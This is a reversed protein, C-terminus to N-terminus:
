KVGGSKVLRKEEDTMLECAYSIVFPPMKEKGNNESLFSVIRKPNVKYLERLVWGVAKQILHRKDYMVESIWKICFNYEDKRALTLLSIIGIRREWLRDTKLYRILEDDDVDNYQLHAKKISDEAIVSSNIYKSIVKDKKRYDLFSLYRGLVDPATVDTLDWNNIYYINENMFLVIEELSKFDKKDYAKKSMNSMCIVAFRRLDHYKSNIFPRLTDISIKKYWLNALKRIVPVRVGLYMDNEGYGGKVIQLLKKDFDVNADQPLLLFDYLLDIGDMCAKSNYSKTIYSGIVLNDVKDFSLNTLVEFNIGGDVQIIKTDFLERAKSIKEYTNQIFEQGGLGPNVSMVLLLDFKDEYKKVLSVDTEPKVSVGIRLNRNKSMKLEQKIECLRNLVNEFNDIEYHITISDAGLEIAKKIYGDEIPLDVMLHVDCYLDLEKAITISELDVGANSVFKNDMIDFHVSYNFNRSVYEKITNGLFNEIDLVNLVSVAIDKKM